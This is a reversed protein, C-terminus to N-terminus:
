DVTIGSEKILKAFSVIEGEMRARLVQPGSIVPEAGLKRVAERTEPTDFAALAKELRALVEAPTGTPALLGYWAGAEYGPVGAEAMTPLDPLVEWRKTTGIALIRVKGSEVGPIVAAYNTFMLPVHGAMVDSFAPAAGKYPVHRVSVGALKTFLAGGLHAPSGAGASAYSLEGPRRKALAILEQVTKAALSANVALVIPVEAILSVPVFDRMTDYPMKAYLSMNATNASSGNLLTYGDAPARAVSESGINSGAGAKNEVIVAQGLHKELSRSVLRALSDSVAGPPYPNVLKIPKSPWRSEALVWPAGLSLAAAALTLERRNM